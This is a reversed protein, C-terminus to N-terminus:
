QLARPRAVMSRGQPETRGRAVVRTLSGLILLAVAVLVLVLRDSGTHALTSGSTGAIATMGRARIARETVRAFAPVLTTQATRSGTGAGDAGAPGGDGSGADGGVSGGASSSAGGAGGAGDDNGDVSGTGGGPSDSGDPWGAIGLDLGSGVSGGAVSLDTELSAGVDGNTDGAGVGDATGADGGVSLVVNASAVPVNATMSPDANDGGFVIPAPVASAVPASASAGLSVKARLV